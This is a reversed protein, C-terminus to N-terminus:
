IEDAEADHLVTMLLLISVAGQGRISSLPRPLSQVAGHYHRSRYTLDPNDIGTNPLGPDFANDAHFLLVLM